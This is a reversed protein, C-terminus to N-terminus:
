ENEKIVYGLGRKTTILSKSDLKDIKRRINKILVDIVNSEGDYDFDWVHERIQERSLIYGKNQMLYELIEYEKGTLEISIGDRTVTKKSINLVLDDISLQNSSNGYKRRIIARIRALLENFDFPKVLYDDAGLDLGKVKDEINDKATLMLVPTENQKTRLKKVVEYGNLKPMMIDLIVLDYNEYELFNLAEEGDFVSDVSFNNKKLHRTIVSNLDKEDEVVLIKM